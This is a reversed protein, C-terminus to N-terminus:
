PQLEISAKKPTLGFNVTESDFHRPKRQLHSYVLNIALM